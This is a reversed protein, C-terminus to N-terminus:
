EGVRVAPVGQAVEPRADWLRLFGPADPSWRFVSWFLRWVEDSYRALDVWYLAIQADRMDGEGSVRYAFKPADVSGNWVQDLLTHAFREMDAADFVVGLNAAEICFSLSLGGHSFDDASDSLGDIPDWYAFTYSEGTQRLKSKFFRAMKEAIDRYHDAEPEDPVQSMVLYTRGLALYQNHPLPRVLGPIESIPVNRLYPNAVVRDWVLLGMGEEPEVWCREWKKLFHDRLLAAYEEAKQSYRDHLTHDRTVADVFLAIPYTITGDHVAWELPHVAETRLEFRDGAAPTGSITFKIGPISSIQEGSRYAEDIALVAGIDRDTISYKGAETFEILYSHGTVERNARARVLEPEIRGDGRNGPAASPWGLADTYTITQWGLYGDGDPDSLGAIMRDFHEVLRDTWYSDGSVRWAQMYMLLRSAEGWGLEDSDVSDSYGRGGRFAADHAKLDAMAQEITPIVQSLRDAPPPTNAAMSVIVNDVITRAFDVGDVAMEALPITVWLCNGDGYQNHVALPYSEAETQDDEAQPLGMILPRAGIVPFYHLVGCLYPLGGPRVPMELVTGTQAGAALEMGPTVRLQAITVGSKGAGAGTAPLLGTRCAGKELYIIKWAFNDKDYVDRGGTDLAVASYAGDLLLWGGAAVYRQMAAFGAETFAITGPIYLASFRSLLDADSLDTTRVLQVDLGAQRMAQVWPDGDDVAPNALGGYTVYGVQAAMVPVVCLALLSLGIILRSM